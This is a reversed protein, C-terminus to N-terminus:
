VQPVVVGELFWAYWGESECPVLHWLAWVVRIWKAWGGRRWAGGSVRRPGKGESGPILLEPPGGPWIERGGGVEVWVGWSVGAICGSCVGLM